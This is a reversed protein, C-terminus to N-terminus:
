VKIKILKPYRRAIDPHRRLRDELNSKEWWRVLFKKQKGLGDLHGVLPASVRPYAILLFGSADHRELTDRIDRVDGKGVSPRNRFKVQVLIRKFKTKNKSSSSHHNKVSWDVLIDIGDDRENASGVPKARLVGPERCLLDVCLNEFEAADLPTLWEIHSDAFYVLDDRQRRKLFKRREAEYTERGYNGHIAILTKDGLFLCYNGIPLILPKDCPDGVKKRLRDALKITNLPISNAIGNAFLAIANNGGAINPSYSRLVFKLVKMRIKPLEVISIGRPLSSFYIWNPKSRKYITYEKPYRLTKLVPNLWSVVSELKKYGHISAIKPPRKGADQWEFVEDLMHYAMATWANLSAYIKALSDKGLTLSHPLEIFLHRASLESCTEWCYDNDLYPSTIGAARLFAAWCLSYIDNLDTRYVGPFRQEIVKVTGQLYKRGEQIDKEAPPHLYFPQHIKSVCPLFPPNYLTENGGARISKDVDLLFEFFDM